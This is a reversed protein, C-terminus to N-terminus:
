PPPPRHRPPGATDTPPGPDAGSPVPGLFAPALQWEGPVPDPESRTDLQYLHSLDQVDVKEALHRRISSELTEGTELYGGPLAWRGAFPERAREWLLVQLVGDRVQLVVALSVHAPTASTSEGPLKRKVTTFVLPPSFCTFARLIPAARTTAKAAAARAAPAALELGRLVLAFGNMTSTVSTLWSFSWPKLWSAYWPRSRASRWSPM